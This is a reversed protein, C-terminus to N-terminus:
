NGIRQLLAASPAHGAGAAKRLWSRAEHGDLPVGRGDLYMRGLQYCAEAHGQDAARRLWSAALADSPRVGRGEAFLMAYRYQAEANGRDAVPRLATAAANYDGRAIADRYGQLEAQAAAALPALLLLM